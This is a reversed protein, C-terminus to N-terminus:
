YYRLRSSLKRLRDDVIREDLRDQRERKGAKQIYCFCESIIGYGERILLGM